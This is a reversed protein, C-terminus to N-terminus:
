KLLSFHPVKSYSFILCKAIRIPKLFGQKFFSSGIGRDFDGDHPHHHYDKKNKEEEEEMRLHAWVLGAPRTPSRLFSPIARWGRDCRISDCRLVHATNNSSSHTTTRTHRAIWSAPGIYAWSPPRDKYYHVLPSVSSVVSRRCADQLKQVVHVARHHNHRHGHADPPLRFSEGRAARHLVLRLSAEADKHSCHRWTRLPRRLLVASLHRLSRKRPGNEEDEDDMFLVASDVVRDHVLRLAHLDNELSHGVLVDHPRLLRLLRCQIQELRTRVPALLEADVGSYREVYDIVPAYPVVLEDLITTTTTDTFDTAVGGLDDARLLTVRALESGHQTRVMECDLAYVQPPPSSSDGDPVAFTKV